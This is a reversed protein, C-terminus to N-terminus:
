EAYHMVGKEIRLNHAYVPFVLGDTPRTYMESLMSPIVMNITEDAHTEERLPGFYQATFEKWGLFPTTYLQGAELRRLFVEQMEHAPNDKYRPLEYARMTGYVKYCVNELVTAFLQFNETGAKRLPTHSNTTYRHYVIPSCIEIKEPVFYSRKSMVVCETMSKLASKTPVPYTGFSSGTDPRTFIAARGAIEFSVPYRKRVM